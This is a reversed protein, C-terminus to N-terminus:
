KLELVKTILNKLDSLKTRAEKVAPDDESMHLLLNDLEAILLQIEVHKRVAVTKGDKQNIARNRMFAQIDRTLHLRDKLTEPKNEPM